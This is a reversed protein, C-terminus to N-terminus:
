PDVAPHTGVPHARTSRRWRTPIGSTRTPVVDHGAPLRDGAGHRAPSPVSYYVARHLARTAPGFLRRRVCALAVVPDRGTAELMALSAEWTYPLRPAACQRHRRDLDPAPDSRLLRAGRARGNAVMTRLCKECRGCNYAGGRNEWCVRLWHRAAPEAAVLELKDLRSAECGTTSSSSMKRAGGPDLLPHTGLPALFAYTEPRPSTCADLVPCCAPARRERARCRSLSGLELAIPSRGFIRACSSSRSGSSTPRRGFARRAVRRTSCPTTSRRCRIWARLRARRDRGRHRLVTYFSDVGATFFRVRVGRAGVVARLSRTPGRRRIARLRRIRRDARAWSLVIDEITDVSALLRPSVPDTATLTEGVRMAPFLSRSSSRTAARDDSLEPAEYSWRHAVHEIEVDATVM